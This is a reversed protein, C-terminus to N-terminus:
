TNFGSAARDFRPKVMEEFLIKIIAAVPIAFLLGLVGALSGGILAAVLVTFPGLATGRSQIWPTLVWEELMNGTGFVVSPWVFVRMLDFGPGDIGTADLYMIALAVIWGITSLWPVVALLGTAMGLVFWFPVGVIWWGLSLVLGFVISVILRGRFFAGVADDIRGLVHLAHARHRDPILSRIATGIRPLHLVAFFFSVPILVLWLLLTTATGFLRMLVGRSLGQAEGDQSDSHGNANLFISSALERPDISIGYRQELEDIYHPTRAVFSRGQEIVTPAIWIATAVLAGLGLALLAAASLPRPLRWHRRALEILPDVLYAILLGFLVPLVIDKARWALALLGLGLGIWVLDRVPQMQWLHRRSVEQPTPASADARMRRDDDNM